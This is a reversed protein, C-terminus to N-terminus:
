KFLDAELRGKKMELGPFLAGARKAHPRSLSRKCARGGWEQGGDAKEFLGSRAPWKENEADPISAGAYMDPIVLMSSARRSGRHKRVRGSAEFVEAWNNENAVEFETSLRELCAIIESRQLM